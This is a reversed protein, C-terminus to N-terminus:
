AEAAADSLQSTPHATSASGLGLVGSLASLRRGASGLGGRPGRLKRERSAVMQFSLSRDTVDPKFSLFM